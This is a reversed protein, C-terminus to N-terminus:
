KGNRQLFDPTSCEMVLDKRNRRVESTSPFFGIQTLIKPLFREETRLTIEDEKFGLTELAVLPKGIVVTAVTGYAMFM